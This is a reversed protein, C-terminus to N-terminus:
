AWSMPASIPQPACRFLRRRVREPRKVRSRATVTSWSFFPGRSSTRLLIMLKGSTELSLPAYPIPERLRHCLSSRAAAGSEPISAAQASHTRRACNTAATVNETEALRHASPRGGHGEKTKSEPFRHGREDTAGDGCEVPRM